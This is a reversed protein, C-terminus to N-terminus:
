ISVGNSYAAFLYLKGKKTLTWKVKNVLGLEAVINKATHGTYFGSACKLLAGKVIDRKTLKDGFNANGWIENLEQDTVIEEVKQM